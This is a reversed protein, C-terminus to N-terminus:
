TWKTFRFLGNYDISGSCSDFIDYWNGSHSKQEKEIINVEKKVTM